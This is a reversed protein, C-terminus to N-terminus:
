SNASSNTAAISSQCDVRLVPRPNARTLEDDCTGRREYYTPDVLDPRKRVVARYNPSDPYYKKVHEFLCEDCMPIGNEPIGHPEDGYHWASERVGCVACVSNRCIMM